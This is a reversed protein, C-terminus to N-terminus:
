PRGMQAFYVILEGDDTTNSRLQAELLSRMEPSETTVLDLPTKGDFNRTRVDVSGGANLIVRLTALDDNACVHHLATNGRSSYFLHANVDAGLKLLREVRMTRKKFAAVNLASNLQIVDGPTSITPSPLLDYFADESGGWELAAFVLPRVPTGAKLLEIM